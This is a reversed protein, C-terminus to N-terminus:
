AALAERIQWTAGPVTHEVRLAIEMYGGPVAQCVALLIDKTQAPAEAAAAIAIACAQAPLELAAEGAALAAMEPITKAIAGVVPPVVASGVRGAARVMAKTVDGREASSARQVFNAATAPLEVRPIGLVIKQLQTSSPWEGGPAAQAGFLAA